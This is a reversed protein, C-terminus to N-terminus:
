FDFFSGRDQMFGDIEPFEQRARDIAERLFRYREDNSGEMLKQARKFFAAVQYERCNKKGLEHEGLFYQFYPNKPFRKHGQEACTKLFRWSKLRLLTMGFKELEGEAPNNSILKQVLGAIKKEHTQLGRYPIPENRYAEVASALPFIEAAPPHGELADSFEKQYPALIPKPAKLRSGEVTVRYAVALRLSPDSQVEALLQNGREINKWKFECVAWLCRIAINSGGPDMELAERLAARAQDAEGDIALDRGHRYSMVSVGGRLTRDLPNSQLAKKFCQLAAAPNGRKEQLMAVSALVEIENPFRELLKESLKEAAELKDTDVLM